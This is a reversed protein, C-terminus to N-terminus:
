RHYLYLSLTVLIYSAAFYQNLRLEFVLMALLTTVLMASSIIFLRTINNSYKMIFGMFIGSVAQTVILWWTHASFGKTVNWISGDGAKLAEAIFAIGNLIIGFVYLMSNQLHVSMQARKKMVYETYVGSFGSITCYISIMIIGTVTIHLVSSDVRTLVPKLPDVAKVENAVLNAYSHTFGASLLLFLAFWQLTTLHRKIILRFLIATSLIKFNGLVQYTAPDMELQILIGLNNNLAYTIAPVSFPLAIVALQTWTLPPPCPFERPLPRVPKSSSDSDQTLHYNQRMELQIARIVNKIGGSPGRLPGISFMLLSLILKLIETLLVVSSTKFPLRGGHECLHIFITYSSYLFVAVVLFIRWVVLPVPLEPQQLERMSPEAKGGKEAEKNDSQKSDLLSEEVSKDSM